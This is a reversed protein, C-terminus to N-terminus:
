CFWCSDARLLRVPKPSAKPRPLKYINAVVRGHNPPLKPVVKVQRPTSQSQSEARARAAHTEYDVRTLVQYSLGQLVVIFETGTLSGAIESEGAAVSKSRMRPTIQESERM